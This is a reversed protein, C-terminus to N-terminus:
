KKHRVKCLSHEGNASFTGPEFCLNLFFNRVLWYSIPMQSEEASPFTFAALFLFSAGVETIGNGTSTPERAARESVKERVEWVAM